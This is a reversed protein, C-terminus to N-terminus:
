SKNLPAEGEPFCFLDEGKEHLLIIRLSGKKLLPKCVAYCDSLLEVIFRKLSADDFLEWLERALTLQDIAETPLGSIRAREILQKIYEKNMVISRSHTDLAGEALKVAKGIMIGLVVSEINLDNAINLTDGIYNGYHVFAQEPLHPFYKRLYRESKAGSNIVIESSGISKAVMMEKRISAVFAEHSFPRVIGSTGIISIGGVIGLKPNFTKLALTEGDQVSLVVEIVSFSDSLTQLYVKCDLVQNIAEVIMKRPIENIAPGGVELGLGPLTVRGVGKGACLKLTKDDHLPLCVSPKDETDILLRDAQLLRVGATILCHNTVDPDDGSEKRVQCSVQDDSVILQGVPLSVPEGSPLSIEVEDSCTQSLAALIAGKAAATACTGTTFGTRLLFFGPLLREVARRLGAEGFVCYFSEPLAQRQVVFLPIQLAKALDRKRQFQGSYGSEKTIIADPMYKALEAFEEIENKQPDYYFLQKEPFGCERAILRSDDRDLIRFWCDHKDWYPKLKVITNVGTLALLKKISRNQLEQLAENYDRCWIENASPAPYKREYRIVQIDLAQSVEYITQHLLAAFPHAADIILRISNAQCFRSMANVDMAGSLRQGYVCNIDQQDGKTSYFYATEAADLVRVVARGETTGGFVLIM